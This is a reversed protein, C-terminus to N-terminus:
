TWRRKGRVAEWESVVPSESTSPVHQPADWRPSSVTARPPHHCHPGPQSSAPSQAAPPRQLPLTVPGWARSHCRIRPRSPDQVATPGSNTPSYPCHTCLAPPPSRLPGARVRQPQAASYCNSLGCPVNGTKKKYKHPVSTM